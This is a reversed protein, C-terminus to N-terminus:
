LPIKFDLHIRFADILALFDFTEMEVKEKAKLQFDDLRSTNLSCMELSRLDINKQKENAAIQLIKLREVRGSVLKTHVDPHDEILTLEATKLSFSIINVVDRFINM